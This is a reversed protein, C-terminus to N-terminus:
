VIHLPWALAALTHEVVLVVALTHPVEEFHVRGVGRIEM